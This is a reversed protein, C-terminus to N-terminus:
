AVGEEPYWFYELWSDFFAEADGYIMALCEIENIMTEFAPLNDARLRILTDFGCTTNYKAFERVMARAWEIAHDNSIERSLYSM